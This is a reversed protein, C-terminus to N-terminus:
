LDTGGSTKRLWCGPTLEPASKQLDFRNGGPPILKYRALSTATPNRGFHLDLPFSEHRKETGIPDPLDGIAERVTVWNKLSDNSGPSSHTPKPPFDPSVLGLKTNWGVIVTRRRTQPAGYDAANLVAAKVQFGIQQARSCIDNFESSKLLERVNEMVFVKAESSEVIDMFPEWLARRVDGARNKNLLSFGQCPPGGIVVDAKPIDPSTKLWDEINGVVSRSAFFNDHTRMAAPDNDVALVCQFGGGFRPDIFGLTMGGAGCFLDIVRYSM